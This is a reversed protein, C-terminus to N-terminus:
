LLGGGPSCCVRTSSSIVLTEQSGRGGHGKVRSVQGKVRSVQGKVRSVQGKVRSVQGKVRSVQGWIVGSVCLLHHHGSSSMVPCKVWDWGM